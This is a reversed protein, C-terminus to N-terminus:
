QEKFYIEVIELTDLLDELTTIGQDMITEDLAEAESPPLAYYMARLEDNRTM